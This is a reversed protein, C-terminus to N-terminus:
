NCCAPDENLCAPDKMKAHLRKTAASLSRIATCPSRELQPTHNERELQPMCAGPCMPETTTACPSWFTPETTQSVHARENLHALEVTTTRPSLQGTVHTIKTGRGLISGMDGANSPMNKVVPGGPFDRHFEQDRREFRFLLRAPYLIRPQLNKGKM